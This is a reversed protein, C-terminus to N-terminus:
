KEKELVSLVNDMLQNINFFKKDDSLIEKESQVYNSNDLEDSCNAILASASKLTTELHFQFALVHNNFVFGQNKCAKSEAIRVAGYPIDFTDGHWHFVEVQKPIVEKFITNEIDQTRIINFWGIERYKNKYVKAGLVEAILQAGLCVGLVIKKTLISEKIFSKEDILWPYISEDRVSMPGGMVILWDFDKLEPFVPNDFVKTVSTQHGQKKLTHEMNGLDEFPVHQIYHIRM